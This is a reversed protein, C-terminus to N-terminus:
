GGFEARGSTTDWWIVRNLFSAEMASNSDSHNGTRKGGYKSFLVNEFWIEEHIPMEVMFDDGRVLLRGDREGHM